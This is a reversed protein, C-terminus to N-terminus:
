DKATTTINYVDDITLNQRVLNEPTVEECSQCQNGMWINLSIILKHMFHLCLLAGTAVAFISLTSIKGACTTFAIKGVSSGVGMDFM